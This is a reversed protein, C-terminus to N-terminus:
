FLKIEKGVGIEKAKRYALKATAVDQVALGVAKWLTIENNSLRGTKKGIIIEGLEAYIHDKTIVGEKIPIIIDGSEALVADRSDVVLKVKSVTKSDLERADPGMWGISNIHIGSQLLDGDFVPEKATTAVVLVDANKVVDDIKDKSIINVGLKKSMEEAYKKARGKIADYVLVRELSLVEHIAWLQTRSQAGAGIVGVFKSNKRALYKTAVGTAAGTRMATIYSGEMLAILEGTRPDNMQITALITPLGYRELNREYVSVVKVALADSGELYAPMYLISGMHKSVSLLTRLPVKATGRTFEAFAEEVVRMVDKMELIKELDAKTLILVM